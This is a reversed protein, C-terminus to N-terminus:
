RYINGNSEYSTGLRGVPTTKSKFAPESSKFNITGGFVNGYRLNHPGKLVEAQSIMNIPIQSAAPDMRNPCAATASQVGDLVLNLQDYKFGRLVPDFGYAGSKRITSVAPVNELLAGADHALKNQVSFDLKGPEKSESRVQVLTVPLLNNDVESIALKGSEAALKLQDPSVVIKGYAVHSLYLSVEDKLNITFVGEANTFGNQVDYQYYVDSLNAESQKDTIKIKVEQSYVTIVAALNLLLFLGIHIGSYKTLIKM